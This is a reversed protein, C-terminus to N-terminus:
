HTYYYYAQGCAYGAAYVGGIVALAEMLLGGNNESLEVENLEIVNYNVTEM